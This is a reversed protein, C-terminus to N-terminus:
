CTLVHAMILVTVLQHGNFHDGERQGDTSDALDCLSILSEVPTLRISLTSGVPLCDELRRFAYAVAFRNSRKASGNTM